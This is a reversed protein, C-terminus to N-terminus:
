KWLLIGSIGLNKTDAEGTRKLRSLIFAIKAVNWNILNYLDDGLM